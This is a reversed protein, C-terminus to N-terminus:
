LTARGGRRKSARLPSRDGRCNGTLPEAAVHFPSADHARVYTCRVRLMDSLRRRAPIFDDEFRRWIAGLECGSDIVRARIRSATCAICAPRKREARREARKERDAQWYIASAPEGINKGGIVRARKSPNKKKKTYFRSRVYELIPVIYVHTRPLSLFTETKM